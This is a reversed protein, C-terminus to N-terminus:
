RDVIVVTHVFHKRFIKRVAARGAGGDGHGREGSIREHLDVAGRGDHLLLAIVRRVRLLVFIVSFNLYVHFRRENIADSPAANAENAPEFCASPELAPSLAACPASQLLIVLPRPEVPSTYWSSPTVVTMLPWPVMVVRPPESPRGSTSAIMVCAIRLKTFMGSSSAAAPFRM